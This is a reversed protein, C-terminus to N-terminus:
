RGGDDIRTLGLTGAASDLEFQFEGLFSMGLLPEANTAEPGLVACQVDKLEFTGVRITRAKKLHATIVSGDAITLLVRPDGSNPQLGMEAAVKFPLSVLSAGSDVVMEVTHEGNVVVSVYHTGGDGRLNIRERTVSEELEALKRSNSRWSNSPGFTLAKGREQELAKVKAQIDVDEEADSYAADLSDVLRRMELIQEVYAEQAANLAARAADEREKLEEIAQSALQVQGELASISGVLRNNTAIDSVSALQANLLILRQRAASVQAELTAMDKQITRLPLAAQRLRRKTSSAESLGKTLAREGDFAAANGIVRLELSETPGSQEKEPQVPPPEDPHGSVLGSLIILIASRPFM